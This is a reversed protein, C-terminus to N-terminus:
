EGEKKGFSCFDDIKVNKRCFPNRMCLHAQKESLDKLLYECDKCRVVEVVDATPLKKLAKASKWFASYASKTTAMGAFDTIVEFAKERDIYEAM